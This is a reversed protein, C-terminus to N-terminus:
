YEKQNERLHNFSVRQKIARHFLLIYKKAPVQWSFSLQMGKKMLEIWDDRHKHNEIARTIAVLLDRSDYTKFVFGNGQKTRPNYDTVTDALGGTSRVIPISGYRLSIMQGLGCPEFRSPMLFMDSGAYVKTAHIRSFELHAAFKKSHKKMTKRFFVEYKKDGGGMVVLQLDLRMLPDIIEMILDVGKQETLRSVVGILPIKPDEPLRFMRQLSFKNKTKLFLSHFDYNQDLGPDTAPNYDNYDIGNVIGFLRDKRRQLIRHLAQGFNKTIIEEAYQESVTNIIDAHIIGRKAFNVREIKERDEFKPLKSYGDDKQEFPLRWWDRGLQFSLNHITFVSATKQFGPHKHYRNKLLYPILGTHWDHCQIIDPQTNLIQLLELVAVNFFYFRANDYQTGYIRKHSSFYRERDVFYIPLGPAIESKWFNAHRTTTSDLVIPVGTKIKELHVGTDFVVGHLPMIVMVEYGLQKLAKPLSRAVDSLGGAKAFPDVEASVSVITLASTM